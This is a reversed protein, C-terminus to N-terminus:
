PSACCRGARQDRRLAERATKREMKGIQYQIKRKSRDLAEALSPDFSLLEARLRGLRAEALYARDFAEDLFYGDLPRGPWRGRRRRPRDPKVDSRVAKSVAVCRSELVRALADDACVRGWEM